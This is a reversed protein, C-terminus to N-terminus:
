EASEDKGRNALMYEPIRRQSKLLCELVYDLSEDFDKGTATHHHFASAFVMTDVMGSLITLGVHIAKANPNPHQPNSM